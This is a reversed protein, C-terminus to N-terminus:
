KIAHKLQYSISSYCRVLMIHFSQLAYSIVYLVYSWHFYEYKCSSTKMAISFIVFSMKKTYITILLYLKTVTSFKIANFRCEFVHTANVQTLPCKPFCYKCSMGNNSNMADTSM